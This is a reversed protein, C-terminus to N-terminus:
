FIETLYVIATTSGLPNGNSTTTMAITYTGLTVPAPVTWV